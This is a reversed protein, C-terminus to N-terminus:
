HHSHVRAEPSPLSLAENIIQDSVFTKISCRSPALCGHRVNNNNKNLCAASDSDKRGWPSYGALRGTWPIEWVLISSHTAREKKPPDERGLSQVQMEQMTPPNKSQQAVASAGCPMLSVFDAM